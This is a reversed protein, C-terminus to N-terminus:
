IEEHAGQAFIVHDLHFVRIMAVIGGIEDLQSWHDEGEMSDVM